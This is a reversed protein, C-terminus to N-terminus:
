SALVSVAAATLGFETALSTLAPTEGFRQVFERCRQQVAPKGGTLEAILLAYRLSTTNEPNLSIAQDILTQAQVVDGLELRLRCLGLMAGVHMPAPLCEKRCLALAASFDTEAAATHGSAEFLLGRTELYDRTATVRHQALFDLADNPSSPHLTRVMRALLDGSWHHKRLAEPPSIKLQALLRRATQEALGIDSWYNALELLKFGAYLDYPQRALCNKLIRRDRERKNKRQMLTPHYGIHEVHGSLHRTSLQRASLMASITGAASEHIAHEFRIGADRRFLRLLRQEEVKGQERLNRMLLTAAGIEKDQTLARIEDVLEPSPYEDADLYIIWDGTALKLSANRAAAFDDIWAFNTIKAGALRLIDITADSSGTDAVCLEDWLGATSGLFRPLQEVEDRVIMCLSIM